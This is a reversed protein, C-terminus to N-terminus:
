TTTAAIILLANRPSANVIIETVPAPKMIKDVTSTEYWVSDVQFCISFQGLSFNLALRRIGNATICLLFGTSLDAVLFVFTSDDFKGGSGRKVEYVSLLSEISVDGAGEKKKKM